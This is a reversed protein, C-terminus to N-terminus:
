YLLQLNVSIGTSPPATLFALTVSYRSHEQVTVGTTTTLVDIPPSNLTEGSNNAPSVIVDRLDFTVTLSISDGLILVNVTRFPRLSM